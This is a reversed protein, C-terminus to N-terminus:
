NLYLYCPCGKPKVYPFGPVLYRDDEVGPFYELPLWMDAARTDPLASVVNELEGSGVLKVRIAVRPLSTNEDRTVNVNPPPCIKVNKREEELYKLAEPNSPPLKVTSRRPPTIQGGRKVPVLVGTKGLGVDRISDLAEQEKALREEEEAKTEKPINNLLSPNPSAPPQFAKRRRLTNYWHVFDESTALVANYQGPKYNSEWNELVAARDM